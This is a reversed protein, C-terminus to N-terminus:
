QTQAPTVKLTDYIRTLEMRITRAYTWFDANAQHMALRQARMDKVAQKYQGDSNGCAYTGTAELKELLSTYASQWTNKKETLTAIEQVLHATDINRANLKIVIENLRNIVQQHRNERIAEDNTLRNKLNTVQTTIRNCRNEKVEERIQNRSTDTTNTQAFGQIPVYMIYAFFLVVISCRLLSVM